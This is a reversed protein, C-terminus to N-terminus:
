GLEAPGGRRGFDVLLGRAPGDLQDLVERLRRVLAPFSDEENYIPIVISYKVLELRSEGGMQPRGGRGCDPRVIHYIHGPGASPTPSAVARLGKLLQRGATLSERVIGAEGLRTRM